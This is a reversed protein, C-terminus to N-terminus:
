RMEELSRRATERVYGEDDGAELARLRREAEAGGLRRLATAAFKRVQPEPDRSLELVAAVATEGGLRGLADAAAVRGGEDVEPIAAVIPEVAEPRGMRGLIYIARRRELPTVGGEGRAVALLQAVEAPSAERLLIEQKARACDTELVTRVSESFEAM